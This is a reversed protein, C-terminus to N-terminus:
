TLTRHSQSAGLKCSLLKASKNFSKNQQTTAAAAPLATVTGTIAADKKIFATELVLPDHM